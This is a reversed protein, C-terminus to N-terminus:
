IEILRNTLEDKDDPRRPFHKALLVSCDEIATVFGDAIRGARVKATFVAVVGDWAGEPARSHIGRDAIIQVYREAVAVFLLVGHRDATEHLARAYFQERALRAARHLKVARPVLAMTVPTWLFLVALTAFIAIQILFLPLARTELRLAFLVPPATMALVSAYLIPLFLYTDCRRAIVTVFEGSTKAEAARIANEIRQRGTKDIFPM